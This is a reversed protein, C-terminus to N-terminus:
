APTLVAKRGQEAILRMPEGRIWLRDVEIAQWGAPLVVSRRAWGEVPGEDPRLGPFGLLLSALFGVMAKNPGHESRSSFFSWLGIIVGTLLPFLPVLSVLHSTQM